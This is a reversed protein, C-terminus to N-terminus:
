KPHKPFDYNVGADVVHLEFGYVDCFLGIGGGGEVFNLVQQWTIDITVPSVGEDTIWHDAAVTLMVPKELKPSLTDQILGVQLAIREMQGLSGIPKTKKDIKHQLETKLEANLTSQVHLNELAKM